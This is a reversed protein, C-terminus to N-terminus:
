LILSGTVRNTTYDDSFLPKISRTKVRAIDNMKIDRDKELRNFTNIDIKYQIETIMARAEATTHKM